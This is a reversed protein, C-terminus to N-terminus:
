SKVAEPKESNAPSVQEKEAEPKPGPEDAKAPQPADPRTIRLQRELDANPLAGGRIALDYSKRAEGLKGATAYATAMNYHVNVLSPDIELARQYEKIAANTRGARNAINGLYFFAQAHAPDLSTASMFAMQAQADRGERYHAVGLLFQGTPHDPNFDVAKQLVRAADDHRGMKLYIVGLNVHGPYHGPHVELLTEYLQEAALFRGKDFADSASKGLANVQEQLAVYSRVQHEVVSEGPHASADVISPPLKELLAKDEGTLVLTGSEDLLKIASEMEPDNLKLRKYAAVLLERSKERLSLVQLQKTITERLVKNEAVTEPDAVPQSLAKELQQDLARLDANLKSVRKRFDTNEDTLEIMRKKVLALDTKASELESEQASNSAKLEDVKDRAEKLLRAMTLNEDVLAKVTVPDDKILSAYQDREAEIVAKQQAIDEMQSETEELRQQLRAIEQASVAREAAADKVQQELDKIQKNLAALVKNGEKKETEQQARLKAIQNKLGEESMEAKIARAMVSELAKKTNKLALGVMRTEARAKALEANLADVAPGTAAGAIQKKLTDITKHAATLQAMTEELRKQLALERESRVSNIQGRLTKLEEELKKERASKDLKTNKLANDLNMARTRERNLQDLVEKLRNELDLEKATKTGGGPMVPINIGTNDDSNRIVSDNLIDLKPGDKEANTQLKQRLTEMVKANMNKRNRVVRPEWDPHAATLSVILGDVREYAKLAAADNGSEMLKKAAETLKYIEMYLDSPGITKKRSQLDLPTEIGSRATSNTGTQALAGPMVGCFCLAALCGFSFIPSRM